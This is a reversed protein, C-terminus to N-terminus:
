GSGNSLNNDGEKKKSSEKLAKRLKELIPFTTLDKSNSYSNKEFVTAIIVVEFKDTDPNLIAGFVALNDDSLENEIKQMAFDIDKLTIDEDSYFVVLLKSADSINKGQL